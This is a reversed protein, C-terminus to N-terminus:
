LGIVDSYVGELTVFRRISTSGFGRMGRECVWCPNLHFWEVVVRRVFRVCFVKSPKLLLFGGLRMIRVLTSM